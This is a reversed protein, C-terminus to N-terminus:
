EVAPQLGVKLAGAKGYIDFARGIESLPLIPAVLTKLERSFRPQISISEEFSEPTYGVVGQIRISSYHVINLDFTYKVSPHSSAFLVLIGRRKMRPLIENLTQELAKGSITLFVVDITSAGPLQGMMSSLSENTPDVTRSAGIKEAIERRESMPEVLVINEIGRARAAIVHLLGMPGGGVVMISKSPDSEKVDGRNLSNVVDALPETLSAVEFGVDEKIKFVNKEPVKLFQSFTGGIQTEHQLKANDQLPGISCGVGLPKLCLYPEGKLCYFCSGCSIKPAITVLDGPKLSDVNRGIEAIVGSGEHGLQVPFDISLDRDLVKRIDTPCVTGAKMSILVEHDGPRPIDWDQVRLDRFGYLFATKGKM